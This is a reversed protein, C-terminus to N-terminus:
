AFNPLTQKKVQCLKWTPSPEMHVRAKSYKATILVSWIIFSTDTNFSDESKQVDQIEPLNM